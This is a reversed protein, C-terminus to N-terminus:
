LLYFLLHQMQNFIMYCFIKNIQPTPDQPPGSDGFIKNNQPTSHQHSASDAFIGNNQPTSHQPSLFDAFIQPTPHQPSVSDAFIKDNQPTSHQTINQNMTECTKNTKKNILHLQIKLFM